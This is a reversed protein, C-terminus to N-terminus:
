LGADKIAQHAAIALVADGRMSKWRPGCALWAEGQWSIQEDADMGLHKCIGRAVAEIEANTM